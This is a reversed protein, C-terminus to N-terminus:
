TVEGLSHISIPQRARIGRCLQFIEVETFNTASCIRTFTSARKLCFHQVLRIKGCIIRAVFKVRNADRNQSQISSHRTTANPTFACYFRCTQRSSMTPSARLPQLEAGLSFKKFTKLYQILPGSVGIYLCGYLLM